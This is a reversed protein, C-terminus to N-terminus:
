ETGLLGANKAKSLASMAMHNARDQEQWSSSFRAGHAAELAEALDVALSRLQRLATDTAVELAWVEDNGVAMLPEGRVLKDTFETVRGPGQPPHDPV